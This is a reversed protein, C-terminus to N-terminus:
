KGAEKKLKEVIKPWEKLTKQQAEGCDPCWLYPSGFWLRPKWNHKHKTM